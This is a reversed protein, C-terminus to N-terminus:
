FEEILFSKLSEDFDIVKGKVPVKRGSIKDKKVMECLLCPLKKKRRDAIVRSLVQLEEADDDYHTLPISIGIRKDSSYEDPLKWQLDLFKEFDVELKVTVRNLSAAEFLDLYLRKCALDKFDKRM